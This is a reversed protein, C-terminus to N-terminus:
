QLSFIHELNWKHPARNYLSSPSKAIQGKNVSFLILKQKEKMLTLLYIVM